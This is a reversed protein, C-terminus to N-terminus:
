EDYVEKKVYYGGITVGVGLGFVLFYCFYKSFNVTRNLLKQLNKLIASGNETYPPYRLSHAKEGLPNFNKILVSKKHVFVDFSKKGHYNGIGSNGVGGFPLTNVAVHMITDNICVGGSSTEELFKQKVETRKTFVYLALPKERANIFKIAENANRVNVIPLVPGFIEEKMIDDDPNIDVLITPSIYLNELDVNGGIAIKKDKLLNCIRYFHRENIIRAFDKSKKINEGFFEQICKEACKLFKEQVEKDCLLYDPAVCTQGCNTFKGWLIRKTAMQIDVSFFVNGLLIQRYLFKFIGTSDIYTPSKGGLELTCPTLHNAAAKYIIKGVTTSGTYFIYDFREKLLETTEPVGGLFVPYCEENVYHRLNDALFQSTHTSVDSPKIICCNGAAIAGLAPSLTLNVPYNWAGMVLVVGFPDSCIRLKDLFNLLPKQPIEPRMWEELHKLIHDIELILFDIELLHSEQAPKCFDEQMVRVLDSGKEELFRKMNKLEKVRFNYSRTIGNHFANRSRAVIQSASLKEPVSDIVEMDIVALNGEGTQVRPMIFEGDTM